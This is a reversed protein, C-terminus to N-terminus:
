HLVHPPRGNTSTTCDKAKAAVLIVNLYHCLVVLGTMYLTVQTGYLMVKVGFM